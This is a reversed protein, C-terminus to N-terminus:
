KAGTVCEQHLSPLYKAVLRCICVHGRCVSGTHLCPVAKKFICPDSNTDKSEKDLRAMPDFSLM